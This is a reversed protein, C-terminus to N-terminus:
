LVELKTNIAKRVASAPAKYGFSAVIEKAAEKSVEGISSLSNAEIAALRNESEATKQAIKEDAATLAKDIGKQLEAKTANAIRQAEAKATALAENYHAEVEAAKQRLEEATAIDQAIASKRAALISGIRPLAFRALIFYIVILTIILWFIQNAVWEDCLQPMGIVSGDENICAGIAALAEAHGDLIISDPAPTEAM